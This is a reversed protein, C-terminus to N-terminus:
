QWRPDFGIPYVCDESLRHYGVESYPDSTNYTYIGQTYCSAFFEIPMSFFENYVLGNYMAFFAMMLIMYRGMLMPEMLTGKLKDAGFVLILGFIFLLSGHGMDGFMVGFLFPFSVQAFIAPNIEKYMPMGYTNVIEQFPFTFDNVKIYTPPKITHKGFKSFGVTPYNRLVAEIKHQEEDPAWFYGIYATTGAKM